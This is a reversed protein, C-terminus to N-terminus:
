PPPANPTDEDAFLGRGQQLCHPSFWIRERHKNIRGQANGQVGYGGNTKWALCEWSAPMDHEDNYGCLAIRLLPNDGNAIAWERVDAAVSKSECAYVDSRNAVGYPPDLFVSTLGNGTTVCEGMIRTWDGCAVRVRRLRDSLVNFYIAIGKGANGLHPLKRNIGQGANM